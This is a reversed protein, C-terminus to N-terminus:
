GRVEDLSRERSTSSRLLITDFKPRAFVEALAALLSPSSILTLTGNRVRELLAHPTGHWRLGALLVNTDITARVSSVDVSPARPKSKPTSRKWRCRSSGPPPSAIPSPCSRIPPRSAD